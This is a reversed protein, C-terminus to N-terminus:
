LTRRFHLLSLPPSSPHPFTPFFLSLSLPLFLSFSLPLSPLLFPHLFLLSSCTLITSLISYLLFCELAFVKVFQSFICYDCPFKWLDNVQVVLFHWVGLNWLFDEGGFKVFLCLVEFHAFSKKGLLKESCFISSSFKFPPKWSLFKKKTKIEFLIKM